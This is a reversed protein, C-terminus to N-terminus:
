GVIPNNLFESIDPEAEYVMARGLAMILAVPGDIKAEPRDKRPYVNDKADEKAIVNAMMWTMVPCGDHEVRHSRILGDLHKMPESFNRVIPRMEVVDLGEDMLDTVLMTAQDPDYALEAVNFRDRIELIDERIQRFDIMQGPTVIIRGDRAWGAYHENDAAEATEEPLYYRGFRAYRDDGLPFVLELAAIDVKSALDLGVFCQRGEFDDLSLAENACERWRQINFYAERAGVWVNLHKTQFATQKRSNTLAEKLKNQLFEAQVSVGFNPNAKRLAAESGWDDGPDITYILAFLGEDPAAQELMKEADRQLAYCPGSLNDGATTIILMLPQERAGMGTGMTEVLADTPHEHYEDIIACSPSAGDGPKGIVPEFKSGDEIRYIARPNKYTGSTDVGFYDAFGYAQQAMKWAPTFVELAQRHTTAGSYVEAGYEGDAVMMYLGIAAGFISKGNKRPVFIFATRFRRFGTALSRWGFINVVAFCQWPELRITERKAAWKGKTHPMAEIFRAAKDAEEPDFYYGFSPDLVRQWDDYYRRCAAQVQWCAPVDGSLVDAAYQNARAIYDSM